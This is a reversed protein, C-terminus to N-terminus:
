FIKNLWLKIRRFVQVRDGPKIVDALDSEAVVDVSRPLQGAPAKEPM